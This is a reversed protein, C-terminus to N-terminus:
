IKIPHPIHSSRLPDKYYARASAMVDPIDACEIAHRQIEDIIHIIQDDIKIKNTSFFGTLALSKKISPISYDFEERRSPEYSNKEDHMAMACYSVSNKKLVFEVTVKDDMTGKFILKKVPNQSASPNPPIVIELPKGVMLRHTKGFFHLHMVGPESIRELQIGSASDSESSSSSDFQAKFKDFGDQDLYVVGDFPGGAAIYQQKIGKLKRTINRGYDIDNSTGSREYALLPRNGIYYRPKGDVIAKFVEIGDYLPGNRDNLRDAFFKKAVAKMMGGRRTANRLHRRNTKRGGHHLHKKSRKAFKSRRTAM